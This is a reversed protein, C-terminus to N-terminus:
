RRSTQHKFRNDQNDIETIDKRVVYARILQNLLADSMGDYIAQRIDEKTVGSLVGDM